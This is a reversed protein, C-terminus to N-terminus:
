GRVQCFYCVVVLSPKVTKIAVINWFDTGVQVRDGQLPAFSNDLVLLRDGSMITTGDILSDKYHVVIGLPNGETAEDESMDGTLPNEVPGGRSFVIETGFENLMELAIGALDNYFADNNIM